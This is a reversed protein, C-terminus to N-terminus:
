QEKIFEGPNIRALRIAHYLVAIWSFIILVLMCVPFIWVPLETRYIFNRLWREMLLLSAPISIASSLMALWLYQILEPLIIQYMRAGSIKRLAATKVKKQMFLGSLAFLGMGAIIISIICFVMLIRIQELEIKYLREILSSSYHYELPYDPFMEEWVMELHKIVPVADGNHMISFCFLWTYKPFIVMPSIESDLGSLHFDEVIGSIPGPWIFGPYAFQLKLNKGILSEPNESIMKAATENLFFFEVSDDPNYKAPMDTGYLLEIDYFRFFNEDVPFLFLQKDGEDVGDIEFECADMAQGTPEEMSGTVMVVQPNEMMREKFLDFQDVISRHLSHLHIADKQAAGLQKDMAFHTQKSIMILNSVLVFTIIFELSIISRIFLSRGTGDVPAGIKTSLFKQQLHRYLRNTSIVATILASLMILILLLSVSFLLIGPDQWAAANGLRGIFPSLLLTLAIGSLYAILGVFLNDSLFQRFFIAKGAGMQWQIMLRRIQLQNQSFSLLTFNFWALLFVLMGTIILVLVTRFWVNPQIERAKHSKLHIDTLAQLRPQLGSTLSNDFNSDLFTKIEREYEKPNTGPQLKLYAWATGEFTLPDDFSTLVSIKLHSNEPFDKIVATVTYITPKVDFQHMLSFSKGVPNEKGFFRSSTSRTLIASNPVSLLNGKEGLIVEPAFIELFQPDCTFAFEEYFTEEEIKFAAKRFPAIRGALEIGPLVDSFIIRNLANGHLIRATHRYFGDNTEEFTLRYISEKDAFDRDYSLQWASWQITSLFTTIGIALGAIVLIAYLLNKRLGRITLLLHKGIM